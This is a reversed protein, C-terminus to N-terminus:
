RCSEQHTYPTCTLPVEYYGSYTGPLDTRTGTADDIVTISASFDVYLVLGGVVCVTKYGPPCDVDADLDQDPDYTSGEEKFADELCDVDADLTEYDDVSVTETVTDTGSCNDFTKEDYSVDGTYDDENITGVDVSFGSDSTSIVCQCNDHTDPESGDVYVGESQLCYDCAEGETYWEVITIECSM